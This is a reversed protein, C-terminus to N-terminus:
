NECYGSVLFDNGMSEITANSLDLVSDLSETKGFDVVSIANRDGILKPAIFFSFQNVVKNKFASSFVKEGGELFISFM